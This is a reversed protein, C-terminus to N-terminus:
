AAVAKGHVLGWDILRDRLEDWSTVCAYNISLEACREAFAIQSDSPKGAARTRLLDRAKPRKLEVAACGGAWLLVLDPMGPVLQGSRKMSSIIMAV